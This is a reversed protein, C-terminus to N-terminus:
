SIGKVEVQFFGVDSYHICTEEHLCEWNMLVMFKHHAHFVSEPVRYDLEPNSECALQYAGPVRLFAEDVRLFAEDMTAKVQDISKASSFDIPNKDSIDFNMKLGKRLNM